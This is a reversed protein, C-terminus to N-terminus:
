PAAWVPHVPRREEGQTEIFDSGECTPRGRERAPHPTPAPRPNGRAQGLGESPSHSRAQCPRQNEVILDVPLAVADRRKSNPAIDLGGDTGWPRALAKLFCQTRRGPAHWPRTRRRPRRGSPVRTTKGMAHQNMAEDVLNQKNQRRRAAM